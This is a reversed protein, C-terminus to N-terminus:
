ECLADFWFAELEKLKRVQNACDFENLLFDIQPKRQCIVLEPEKTAGASEHTVDALRQEAFLNSAYGLVLITAELLSEPPCPPRLPNLWPSLPFACARPVSATQSLTGEPMEVAAREPITSYDPSHRNFLGFPNMGWDKGHGRIRSRHEETTVAEVDVAVSHRLSLRVGLRGAEMKETNLSLM